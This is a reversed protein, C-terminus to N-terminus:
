EYPIPFIPDATARIFDHKSFVVPCEWIWPQDTKTWQGFVLPGRSFHNEDFKVRHGITMLDTEGLAENVADGDLTGAREIADILVQISRYGPGIGRNLQKGTEETWKETLTKPTTGGIGPSDEFSPDWWIEVGIGNPLDGGWASVDEHFLPARGISVMKPQFGLVSCQRLLTGAFPAPANGWLIECNYDKWEMIISTFDTTEMPALGVKREEGLVDYGVEELAGPFLAYWGVGDPDDSAFVAVRKNTQDGFLDLMAQWTDTITYGPKARFDGPPAPTVIAFLGTAWTYEWHGEVEMRMGLWPEVPGTSTVYPVKYRDAVTSVGTHMPPPEDGSAFFHVKDRVVLDEALTGAKLPDSESNVVILRIPLERGYEEVYVGGLQNIDDVAARMGFVYGEGFGAYMGTLPATCGVRIEEVAPPGAKCGSFILAGVLVLVLPILLLKKM